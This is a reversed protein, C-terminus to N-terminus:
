AHQLLREELFDALPVIDELGFCPGGLHVDSDSVIALLHEDGTCIPHDHVASRFIEVKPFPHTKYGEAIVIDVDYFFRARLEELTLEAAVGKIVAVKASSALVVTDAGAQAHRWSDKVESDIHFIPHPHHKITGVRYGRRKLEPLLKELLTTKGSGSQGVIAVVPISEISKQSMPLHLWAMKVWM